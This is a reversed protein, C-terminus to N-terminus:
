KVLQTMLQEVLSELKTIKEELLERKQIEVKLAGMVATTLGYPNISLMTDTSGDAREYEGEVLIQKSCKYKQIDQAMIGMHVNAQEQSSSLALKGLRNKSLDEKNQSLMIYNYIDTDKIMEYCEEIDTFGQKVKFREDSTQVTGNSAWVSHWRHGSSGLYTYAADAPCFWKTQIFITGNAKSSVWLDGIDNKLGNCHLEKVYGNSFRWSSTGLSSNNDVWTSNSSQYPIIGSTTTRIWANDARDPLTMGWYGNANKAGLAGIAAPTPKNGETYIKYSNSGNWWAPASKSCIATESVTDGLDVGGHSAIVAIRRNATNGSISGYLATGYALLWNDTYSMFGNDKLQLYRGSKSNHIYADSGGTGIIMDKGNGTISIGSHSVATRGTTSGKDNSTLSSIVGGPTLTTKQVSNTGDTRNISSEATLTTKNFNFADTSTFSSSSESRSYTYGNSTMVTSASSVFTGDNNVTDVFTIRKTNVGNKSASFLNNNNADKVLVRGTNGSGGAEFNVGKFTGSTIMDATVAGELQIKSASIKIAEATQNITSIIKNTDVKGTLDNRYTTSSTVTSVIASDTIKQEASSKWTELASVKGDVTTQKEEVREVRQTISDSVVKIQANTYVKSEDIASDKKADGIFDIAKQAMKKFQALATNYASFAQDLQNKETAENFKGDSIINNITTKLATHKEDYIDKAEKLQAKVGTAQARITINFVESTATLSGDSVQIQGTHTGVSLGSGNFTYSTGSKTPSIASYGGADLKLKHTLTDGDPDTATYSLTYGGSSTENSVLVFSIIPANNTPPTPTPVHTTLVNVNIIKSSVNNSSITITTTRDITISTDKVGRVTVTQETNWNSPTFTLSTSDLTIYNNSKSISVVQNNTPAKDLKVTFTGANDESLNMNTKNVVINGYTPEIVPQTVTVACSAVKNGDQSTATIIAKGKRKATVLGNSGVSAVSSDSAWIIAKNTANEPLVTAMLTEAEGVLLNLSQKNLSVSEVGVYTTLVNVNITKSPVNNSSVTIISERNTTISTDKVGRVIVTQEINWNSPTFTLSTTDLTINNNNKSITVIQNNTPAKDLKVTFTGANDESLSMNTKNVIINGYVNTAERVNVHITYRHNGDDTTATVPTYGIGTATILGSDNVTAVWPYEAWWHILQNTANPPIVSAVMQRAQGIELAVDWEDVTIGTVPVNTPTGGGSGGGSETGGLMQQVMYDAIVQQGNGNPHTTDWDGMYNSVSKDADMSDLSYLDLVELGKNNCVTVIANRYDKLTHGSKNATAHGGIRIPTFFTIRKSPYKSKLGDALVNLAGYFTSKDTSSSSGLPVGLLFDNVGGFVTVLNANSPLSTYYNCFSRVDPVTAGSAGIAVVRGSEGYNNARLSSVRAVRAPYAQDNGGVGFGYTISNGFAVWEGATNQKTAPHQISVLGDITSSGGGSSGGSGGSSGSDSSDTPFGYSWNSPVNTCWARKLQRTALIYKGVAMDRNTSWDPQWTAGVESWWDAGSNVVLRANDLNDAGSENWKVLKFDIKTVIYPQGNNSWNSNSRWNKQYGWPHFCRGSTESTQKIKVWRSHNGSVGTEWETTGSINGNGDDWFDERYWTGWEFDESLVDWSRTSTNWIWMKPNQLLLGVNDYYSSGSVKYTTMWHGIANWSSVPFSGDPNIRPGNVWNYAGAPPNPNNPTAEHSSSYQQSVPTESANSIDSNNSGGGSGGSSSSNVYITGSLTKGNSLTINLYDTGSSVGRVTVSTSSQSSITACGSSVYANSITSSTGSVNFTQTSGVNITASTPSLTPNDSSGGGSGSGSGGGTTGNFMKEVVYDAIAKHGEVTPHYYDYPLFYGSHIGKLWSFEDVSFLDLVELKHKNCMTVIANRFDTLTHGYLNRGDYGGIKFPTIFVIRGNPYKQKLGTILVHLAGYFDEKNTSGETGIKSDARHDNVSGLVTILDLGDAMQTYRNCFADEYGPDTLALNYGANICSGAIGHNHVNAGILNGAVNAYSYSTGGAGTGATISDGLAGWYKPNLKKTAPYKVIVLGNSNMENDAGGSDSGGGSSSASVTVSITKSSVNNSTLTISTSGQATGQVTITQNTNWNSSSFTLSTPSISIGSGGSIYITQSQSPAQSLRVTFTTSSGNQVSLSSTSTVIEGYTTSSGGGSSSGSVNVHINYSYNGDATTAVVLSYGEKKATILGNSSVTAVDTASTTWYITQNTADSPIVSAVMQRTQGVQLKVDWADVTIGTVPINTGGPSGNGGYAGVTIPVSFSTGDTLIINLYDKGEGMAQITVYTSSQTYIICRGNTMYVTQITASTGSLTFTQTNNVAITASSPTITAGGTGGGGSGSSTVNVSIQKSSVGSSSLTITASGQSTGNVTVTQTSSWNSTTFTLSSPSVTANGSISISVTQSNTPQRDLKVTFTTSSGSVVSVSTTSTVIEGYTTSGSSGGSGGGTGGGGSSGNNDMNEYTGYDDVCPNNIDRDVVEKSVYSGKVTCDILLGSQPKDNTFTCNKAINSVLNLNYFLGTVTNDHFRAIGHKLIDKEGGGRIAVGDFTSNKVEVWRTREWMYMGDAKMNNVVFNHGACTLFGNHPCETITFNEFFADQMGDWGDEADYACTASSQGSNTITCDKVLFDKMQGQAMGVCRANDITVNEFKCHTPVRLFHYHVNWDTKERLGLFVTRAYYAGSPIKIQRYQYANVAEILNRSSDYFYVVMNFSSFENGQYNLHISVTLFDSKGIAGSINTFEKTRTRYSCPKDQGTTTDIDGLEFGNVKDGVVVPPFFTTGNSSKSSISNQLGYGTIDKITVDYLSSYRCSGGMEFGSVWESNSTSGAYDHGFYDGEFTGNHVHTDIADTMKAILAGNGTFPNTKFTSGNMDFDLGSPIEFGNEDVVYTARYMVIKNYGANVKDKLLQTLKISNNACESAVASKNYDSAYKVKIKDWDKNIGKYVGTGTRDPILCLYKGSPVTASNYANQILNNISDANGNASSVNVFQKQERDKNYTIGYTSLDSTTVTYVNTHTTNNKVRVYNFLEHSYRGYQDRAIISYHYTGETSFSGITVTHEGASLNTLVQDAKGDCKVIVKYRYFDSNMTYSRGYFDTVFFKVTLNQGTSITPEVYYTSLYPVKNRLENDPISIVDSDDSGSGGSGGSGGTVTVDCSTEYKGDSTRFRITTEGAGVGTIRYKYNGLDSVSAISGNSSMFEITKNTVDSGFLMTVDATGSVAVTASAPETKIGSAVGGGGSDSGGGSTSDSVTFSFVNSTALDVYGNTQYEKAVLTINNYTGSSLDGTYCVVKGSNTDRYASCLYSGGQRLEWVASTPINVSTTYSLELMEGALVTHSTGNITLNNSSDSGGGNGGSSSGSVIHIPVSARGSNVFIINLADEGEVMATVTVSTSTQTTDDISIKGNATYATRIKDGAVTFTKKEGVKMTAESPTIVGVRATKDNSM